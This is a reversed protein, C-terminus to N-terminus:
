GFLAGLGEIGSEEEKEKEEEKKEVTQEASTTETETEEEELKSEKGASATQQLPLGKIMSALEEDIAEGDVDAIASALSLMSSNARQIVIDLVGPVPLAAEVGVALAVMHAERIILEITELTPYKANVGLSIARGYASALKNVYDDVNLILDSADYVQGGEYVGRLDLGIEMPYIELKALITAMDEGVVEGEKLVTKTERIVVKGGEIAAPVGNRQLEGVIPGPPFSTPGAEVVINKPSQMGAKIPAPTKSQELLRYLKFPNLHTFVLMTQETIYKDLNQYEDGVEDLARKILTNRGLRLVAIGRLNRRIKQLQEAGIGFIGAMAVVPYEKILNTLEEVENLKWKPVQETHRVTIENM